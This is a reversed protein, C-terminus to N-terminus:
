MLDCHYLYSLFIDDKYKVIVKYDGGTRNRLQELYQTNFVKYHLGIDEIPYARIYEEPTNSINDKLIELIEENLSSISDDQIERKFVNKITNLINIM